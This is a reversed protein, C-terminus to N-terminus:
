KWELDKRHTTEVELPNWFEIIYGPPPEHCRRLPNQWALCFDTFQCGRYKTCNSWNMPFSMLTSDGEKCDEMLRATEVKIDDYLRNVQWLWTNMQEPTKDVPVRRLTIHYGADRQSSKRKLYEFGTGCFEVGKVNEYGYMFYMAHTYTGSQINLLFNNGWQGSINKGSKHDWSFIKNNELNELISDVRYTIYKKGNPHIPVKGSIETYLVKNEILDRQKEVAFKTLALVVAEPNKPRYLEDTESTFHKRYETNFLEFSDSIKDYGHILQYERALHWAQGFHLDHKPFDSKWGLIYIYFYKRPCDMFASLKSSDIIDWTHHPNISHM